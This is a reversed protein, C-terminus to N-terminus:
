GPFAIKVPHVIAPHPPLKTWNVWTIQDNPPSYGCPAYGCRNAATAFRLEGNGAKIPNELLMRCVAQLAPESMLYLFPVAGMAFPAYDEPLPGAKKFWFWETERYKLCVSSAVFPFAWVPRYYERAPMACFTDWEVIWWKDCVEKRQVFWSCVLQDSSRRVLLSHLWQLRPTPELTYGNPLPKGSSMTVVTAGPNHKRLRRLHEKVVADVQHHLFLIGLRESMIRCEGYLMRGAVIAPWETENVLMTDNKVTVDLEKQQEM